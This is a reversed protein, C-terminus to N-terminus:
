GSAIYADFQSKYFLECGSYETTNDSTTYGGGTFVYKLCGTRRTPM